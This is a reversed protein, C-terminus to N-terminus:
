HKKIAATWLAADQDSMNGHPALRADQYGWQDIDNLYQERSLLTGACIKKNPPPSDTENRLRDMLGNLLWRPILKRHMPYIFGFLTLHSLLLRWHPDFRRFLREWDFKQGCALILHAVDAGDFREREMIFAKSWTMEEPPCIRTRVGFIKGPVAYEFWTADVEAIGNGSSFVLDVFDNHDYVKALWHPYTLETEYGAETLVRSIREYHDWRIFIDFDKTVRDMGTYHNLAYTGGVLYPLAAKNLIQLIDRYFALSASQTGAGGASIKLNTQM